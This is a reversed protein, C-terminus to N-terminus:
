AFTVQLRRGLLIVSHIRERALEAQAESEFNALVDISGLGGDDTEKTVIEKVAADEALLDELATIFDKARWAAIRAINLSKSRKKTEVKAAEGGAPRWAEVTVPQPEEPVVPKQAKVSKKVTAPKQVKAPKKM